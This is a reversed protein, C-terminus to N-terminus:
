FGFIFPFLLCHSPKVLKLDTRIQAFPKAARNSGITHSPALGDCSGQM